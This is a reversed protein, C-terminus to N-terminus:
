PLIIILYQRSVLVVLIMQSCEFELLLLFHVVICIELNPDHFLGGEHKVIVIEILIIDIRCFRLRLLVLGYHHM